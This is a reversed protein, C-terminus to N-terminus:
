SQEKETDVVNEGREVDEVEGTLSGYWTMFKPTFFFLNGHAGVEMVTSYLVM